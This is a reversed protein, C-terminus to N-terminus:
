LQHSAQHQEDAVAVAVALEKWEKAIARLKQQEIPESVNEAHAESEWARRVCDAEKM